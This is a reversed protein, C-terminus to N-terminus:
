SCSNEMFFDLLDSGKDFDAIHLPRVALGEPVNGLVDSTLVSADFLSKGSSGASKLISEVHPQLLPM